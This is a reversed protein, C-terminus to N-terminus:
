FASVDSQRCLDMYDLTHTKWYEHISTLTPGYLLNLMSSHISEFQPTPSSELTEQVALLDFWDISFSILGSYKSSPSINPFISPLLLLAHCLILHNYPIVLEISMLILLSWPVTFSLSALRAETWSTVFLQM